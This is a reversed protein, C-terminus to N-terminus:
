VIKIKFNSKKKGKSNENGNLSEKNNELGVFLTLALGFGRGSDYSYRLPLRHGNSDFGTNFKYCGGFENDYFWVFESFDVCKEYNFQCSIVMEKISYGLKKKNEDTLNTYLFTILNQYYFGTDDDDFDTSNNEKLYNLIIKRGEEKVIPDKNCFIVTPFESELEKYVRIKTIVDYKFYDIITTIVVYSCASFSLIFTVTWLVKIFLNKPTDKNSEIQSVANM